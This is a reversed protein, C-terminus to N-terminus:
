KPCLSNIGEGKLVRYNQLITVIKGKKVSEIGYRDILRILYQLNALDGGIKRFTAKPQAGTKKLIISESKTKM